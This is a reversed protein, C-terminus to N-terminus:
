PGVWEIALYTGTDIQLSSGNVNCDIELKDGATLSILVAPQTVWNSGSFTAQIYQSIATLLVGGSGYTGNKSAILIQSSTAAQNGVVNMAGSWKYWGTYPAVWWHNTNDWASATDIQVTDLPIKTYGGPSSITFNTGLQIQFIPKLIDLNLALDRFFINKTIFTDNSPNTGDGGSQYEELLLLDYAGPSSTLTTTNPLNKIFQDAM